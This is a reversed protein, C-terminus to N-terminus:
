RRRWPFRLFKAKEFQGASEHCDRLSYLVASCEAEAAFSREVIVGAALESNEM